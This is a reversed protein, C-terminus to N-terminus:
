IYIYICYWRGIKFINCTYHNHLRLAKTEGTVYFLILEQSRFPQLSGTRYMLWSFSVLAGLRESTASSFETLRESCTCAKSVWESQWAPSISAKEPSLFGSRSVSKWKEKYDLKSAYGVMIIWTGKLKYLRQM